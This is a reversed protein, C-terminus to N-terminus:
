IQKDYISRYVYLSLFICFDYNDCELGHGCVIVIKDKEEEEDDNWCFDACM